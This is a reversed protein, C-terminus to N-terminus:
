FFALQRKARIELVHAFTTGLLLATLGLSSASWTLMLAWEDGAADSGM